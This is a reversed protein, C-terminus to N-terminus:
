AMSSSSCPTSQTSGISHNASSNESVPPIAPVPQRKVTSGTHTHTFWLAGTLCAGILFSAFAIGLVAGLELGHFVRPPLTSVAKIVKLGREVGERSILHSMFTVTTFCQLDWRQSHHEQVPKLTFSFRRSSCTKPNCTEKKIDLSKLEMGLARARLSCNEIDLEAGEMSLSTSVEAYITKNSLVEVIGESPSRYDPSLYLHMTTKPKNPSTTTQLSTSPLQPATNTMSKMYVKLRKSDTSIETYSAPATNSDAEAFKLLGEYSAPLNPSNPLLQYGMIIFPNNSKFKCDIRCIIKWTTTNPGQLILTSPNHHTFNVEILRPTMTDVPLHRIIHVEEKAKLPMPIRCFKVEVSTNVPLYDLYKGQTFNTQLECDQSHGRGANFTISQPDILETFSTVAGFKSKAWGLLSNSDSQVVAHLDLDVTNDPGTVTIWSNSRILYVKAYINENLLTLSVNKNSNLIISAPVTNKLDMTFSSIMDLNLNILHIERGESTDASWCGQSVWSPTVKIPNEDKVEKLECPPVASTHAAILVVILIAVKM